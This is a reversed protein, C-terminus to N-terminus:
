RESCGDNRHPVPPTAPIERTQGRTLHLPVENKVIEAQSLRWMAKIYGYELPDRPSRWRWIM